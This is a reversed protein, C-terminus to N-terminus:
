ANFNCIFKDMWGIACVARLTGKWSHTFGFLFNFLNKATSIISFNDSPGVDQIDCSATMDFGSLSMLTQASMHSAFSDM